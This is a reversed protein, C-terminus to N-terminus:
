MAIPYLTGRGLFLAHNKNIFKEALVKIDDDMRLAQEILSPLTRLASVLQQERARSLGHHKGLSMIMMLLATLQTTFAKTSAVGIETGAYTFFTADSERDISSNAVNCISLTALYDQGKAKRLAALTDATEGSQSITVFLTAPLSNVKRYRFESAM